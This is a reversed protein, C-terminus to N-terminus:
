FVAEKKTHYMIEESNNYGGEPLFQAQKFKGPGVQNEKIYDILVEIAYEMAKCKLELMEVKRELTDSRVEASEMKISTIENNNDQIIAAERNNSQSLLLSLRMQDMQLDFWWWMGAITLALMTALVWPTASRRCIHPMHMPTNM